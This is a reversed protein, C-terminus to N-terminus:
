SSPLIKSLFDEMKLYEIFSSHIYKSQLMPDTPVTEYNKVTLLCLCQLECQHLKVPLVWVRSMSVFVNSANKFSYM